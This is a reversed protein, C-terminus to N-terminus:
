RPCTVGAIALGECSRKAAAADRQSVAFILRAGTSDSRSILYTVQRVRLYTEDVRWSGNTTRLEAAARNLEPAYRQVWRWITVHDVTFTLTRGDDGGPESASGLDCTGVSAFSLSRPKSIDGRSCYRGNRRMM